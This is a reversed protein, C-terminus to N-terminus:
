VVVGRLPHPPPRGSPTSWGALVILLVIFWRSRAYRIIAEALPLALPQDGGRGDEHCDTAVGGGPAGRGM